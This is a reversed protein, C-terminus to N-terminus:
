GGGLIKDILKVMQEETFASAEEASVVVGGADIVYVLSRMSNLGYLEAVEKNGKLVPYDISRMIKITKNWQSPDCHVAIVILNKLAYRDYVRQLAQLISTSEADKIRWFYLVCMKRGKFQSLSVIRGSRDKLKFNPAKEGYAVPTAKKEQLEASSLLSKPPPQPVYGSSATDSQQSAAGQSASISSQPGPAQANNAQIEKNEDVYVEVETGKEFVAQSGKVFLFLPSLLLAGGWAWFGANTGSKESTMRVKVNTGDVAQVYDISILLKGNRGLGRAPEAETVTGFGRAGAAILTVNNEKYDSVVEFNVTDGKHAHATSVTELLRLRLKVGQQLKGLPQAFVFSSWLALWICLIGVLLRKM